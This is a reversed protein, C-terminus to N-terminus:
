PDISDENRARFYARIDDRLKVSRADGHDVLQYLGQWDAKLDQMPDFRNSTLIKWRDFYGRDKKKGHWSHLVTGPIFGVDRRIYREARNEWQAIMRHYHPTMNREVSSAGKGILSLAMHRDGAGLISRDILGGLADIAERRAAWAFGPHWNPYYAATFPLRNLYSYM